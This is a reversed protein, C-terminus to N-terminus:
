HRGRVPIIPSLKSGRFSFVTFVKNVAGVTETEWVEVISPMSADAVALQYNIRLEPGGYTWTCVGDDTDVNSRGRKSCL